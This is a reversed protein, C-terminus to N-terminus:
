SSSPSRSPPLSFDEARRPRARCRGLLVGGVALLAGICYLLYFARNVLRGATAKDANVLSPILAQMLFDATSLIVAVSNFALSYFGLQAKTCLLSVLISDIWMYISGILQIVGSPPRGQRHEVM